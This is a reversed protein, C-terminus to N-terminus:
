KVADKGGLRGGHLEKQFCGGQGAQQGAPNGAAGL